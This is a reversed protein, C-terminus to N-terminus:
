RVNAVIGIWFGLIACDGDSHSCFVIRHATIIVTPRSNTEHSKSEPWFEFSHPVFTEVSRIHVHSSNHLSFFVKFVTVAKVEAPIQRFTLKLDNHLASLLTQDIEGFMYNNISKNYSTGINKITIAIINARSYHKGNVKKNMLHVWIKMINLTKNNWKNLNNIERKIWAGLKKDKVLLLYFEMCICDPISFYNILLSYSLAFM